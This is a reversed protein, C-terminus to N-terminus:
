TKNEILKILAGINKLEQLEGLAFKVDFFKEIEMILVVHNLSDWNSIDSASTNESIELNANNFVKQCIVRVHDITNKKNM